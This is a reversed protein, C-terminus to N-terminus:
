DNNTFLQNYLDTFSDADGNAEFIDQIEQVFAEQNEESLNNYAEILADTDESTLEREPDNIIDSVNNIAESMDDVAEQQEPDSTDFEINSVDITSMATELAGTVKDLLANITPDTIGVYIALANDIFEIKTVDVPTDSDASSVFKSLIEKTIVLYADNENKEYKLISDDDSMTKALMDSLFDCDIEIKGLTAKKPLVIHIVDKQPNPYIIDCIMVAKTKLGNIDVFINITFKDKTIDFSVGYISVKFEIDGLIMTSYGLSEYGNSKTYLLRGLETESFTIVNDNGGALLGMTITQTKTKAFTEFNFEKKLEENFSLESAELKLKELNINFSLKKDNSSLVLMKNDPNTIIGLFAVVSPDLPEENKSSNDVVVKTIYDGLEKKNSTITLNKLDIVLPIEKEKLKNNIETADLKGGNIISEYITKGLGKQLDIKGLKASVINFVYENDNTTVQLGIRLRTKIIGLASATLNLYMNEDDFECYCSKIIAKKGGLIPVGDPVGYNSSIYKQKDTTGNVPDYEENIKSKIISYLLQNVSKEDFSFDLAYNTGMNDFSDKVVPKLVENTTPANEYYSMNVDNTKDSIIIIIAAVIIVVIVVIALIFKLLFKILKM